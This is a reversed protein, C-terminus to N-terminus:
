SFLQGDHYSGSRPGNFLCRDQNGSGNKLDNKDIYKCESLRLPRLKPGVEKLNSM